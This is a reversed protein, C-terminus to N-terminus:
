RTAGGKAADARHDHEGNTDTRNRNSEPIRSRALTTNLPLVATKWVARVPEFGTERVMVHLELKLQARQLRAVTRHLESARRRVLRHIPPGDELRVRSPEIGEQHM